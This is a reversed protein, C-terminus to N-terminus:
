FPLNPFMVLLNKRAYRLWRTESTFSLLAEM